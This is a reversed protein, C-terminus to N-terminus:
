TMLSFCNLNLNHIELYNRVSFNLKIKFLKSLLFIVDDTIIIIFPYLKLQERILKKARAEYIFNLNLVLLDEMLLILEDFFLLMLFINIAHQYINSRFCSIM